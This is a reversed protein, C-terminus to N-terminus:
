YKKISILKFNGAAHMNANSIVWNYKSRLNITSSVKVNKAIAIKDINEIAM